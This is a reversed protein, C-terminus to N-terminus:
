NIELCDVASFHCQSGFGCHDSTCLFVFVYVLFDLELVVQLLTLMKQSFSAAFISAKMASILETILIANEAM